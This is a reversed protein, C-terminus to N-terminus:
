WAYRRGLGWPLGIALATALLGIALPVKPSPASGSATIPEPPPSTSELPTAEGGPLTPAGTEGPVPIVGGTVPPVGPTAAPPIGASGEEIGGTAQPPPEVPAPAGSGVGPPPPATRSPAVTTVKKERPPPSIPLANGATAVLVEGTVWVPTQDSSASYRYHGDAAQRAALYDLASSAGSAVKAPDAGVAIMGQVAWATSQSNVGGTSGLAFGGNPRQHKRLYDLGDAAAKTNPVAQMAAATVDANSPLGPVDGWGGDGNQVSS